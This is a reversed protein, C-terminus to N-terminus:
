TDARNALMAAVVDAMLVLDLLQALPTDGRAVITHVEDFYQDLIAVGGDLGEPEYDHRLLILVAGKATAEALRVGTAVDVEGTPLRRRVSAVGGVRDIEQVWRRAAHKGIAGAANIIAVRGPLVDVLRLIPEEDGVQQLRAELQDATSSITQSMGTVFGLRELLVLAPVITVGLAAAPGSDTDIRVVAVEWEACLEALEGGSTLGILQAGAARAERAATITAQTNGSRSIAIALTSGSVWSPCHGGTAIIPVNGRIESIAEVMDGAVRGGGVGFIVVQTVDSVDPLGGIDAAVVAIDRVQDPLHRVADLLEDSSM